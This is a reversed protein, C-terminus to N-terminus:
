FSRSSIAVLRANSLSILFILFSILSEYTGERIQGHKMSSIFGIFGILASRPLPGRTVDPGKSTGTRGPCIFHGRGPMHFPGAWVYSIARGLCIFNGPGSMYFPGAWVYLIARGTGCGCGAREVDAEPGNWMRRRGTGNWMRGTGCGCEAREVDAEPGNREVDPGNWMWM